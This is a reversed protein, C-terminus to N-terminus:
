NKLIKNVIKKMKRKKGGRQRKEVEREIKQLRGEEM